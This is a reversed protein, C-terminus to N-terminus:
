GPHQRRRQPLQLGLAEHPLPAHLHISRSPRGTWISGRQWMCVAGYRGGGWWVVSALWGYMALWGHRIWRGVMVLCGGGWLDAAEVGLGDGEAAEIALEVGDGVLPAVAHQGLREPAHKCAYKSCGQKPYTVVGTVVVEVSDCMRALACVDTRMGVQIWVTLRECVMCRGASPVGGGVRAGVALPQQKVAGDVGRPDFVHVRGQVVVLLEAQVATPPPARKATATAQLGRAKCSPLPGCAILKKRRETKGLLLQGALRRAKIM